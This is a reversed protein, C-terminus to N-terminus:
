LRPPKRMEEQFDRERQRKFEDYVRQRTYESIASALREFDQRKESLPKGKQASILMAQDVYEKLPDEWRSEGEVHKM